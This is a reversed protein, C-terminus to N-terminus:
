ASAAARRLRTLLSHALTEFATDGNDGTGRPADAIEGGPGKRGFARMHDGDGAGDAPELLEIVLDTGGAALRRKHRDIEGVVLRDVAEPGRDVLPPLLEVDQDAIGADQAAQRREAM